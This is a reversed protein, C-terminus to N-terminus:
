EEAPTIGHITLDTFVRLVRTYEKLTVSEAHIAQRYACTGDPAPLDARMALVEEAVRRATQLNNRAVNLRERWLAELDQRRGTPLSCSNQLDDPFCHM